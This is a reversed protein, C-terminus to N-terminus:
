LSLLIMKGSMKVQIYFQQESTKKQPDKSIVLTDTRLIMNIGSRRADPASDLTAQVSNNAM